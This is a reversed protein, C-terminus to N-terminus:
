MAEQGKSNRSLLRSNEQHTQGTTGRALKLIGEKRYEEM